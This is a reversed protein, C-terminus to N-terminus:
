AASQWWDEGFPNGAIEMLFWGTRKLAARRVAGGRFVVCSARTRVFLPPFCLRTIVCLYSLLVLARVFLPCGVRRRRQVSYGYAACIMDNWAGSAVTAGHDHWIDQGSTACTEMVNQGELVRPSFIRATEVQSVYVSQTVLRLNDEM